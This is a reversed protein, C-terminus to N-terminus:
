ASTGAPAGAARDLEEVYSRWDVNPSVFMAEAHTAIAPIPTWLTRRRGFLVQGPSYRWPEITIPSLFERDRVFYKLLRYPNRVNWKTLAMWFGLDTAGDAYTELVDRTKLLTERRTLFTCCTYVAERWHKGHAAEIRFRHAHLNIKTYYDLHDYPSVFDHRAQDNLFALMSKFQGPLYVYDDEALYVADADTQAALLEIQKAFTAANGVAPLNLVELSEAAFTERFLAEYEPPCGDLLAWVKARVGSLSRVFSDLCVRVLAYKDDAHVFPRKSVRPYVRYAVAVDYPRPM